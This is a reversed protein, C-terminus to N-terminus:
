TTEQTPADNRWDSSFKNLPESFRQLEQNEPMTTDVGQSQLWKEETVPESWTSFSVPPQNDPVSDECELEERIKKAEDTSLLNMPIQALLRDRCMELSERNDETGEPIALISEEIQLLQERTFESAAAKLFLGLEYSTEFRIQIPKAICLEFFRPAFVKPFQSATKLIRKWFFAVWVEDRFIGLLSDLRPDESKALESIFEFLTNAMEIPEDTYQQEDWMYSNDEVFYVPKGGFDFTEILDEFTGDEKPYGVIHFRIIFFNM